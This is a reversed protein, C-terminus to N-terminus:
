EAAAVPFRRALRFEAGKEPEVYVALSVFARPTALTEAFFRRAPELLSAAAGSNSLTMHFRWEDLVYPYGYRQLYGLQAATRGAARKAQMAADEPLRHADLERVCLAAAENLAACEEAPLIALFGYEDAVRLRPMAFPRLRRALIEVDALFAAFGNRLQMPPKLTAHFGYRRPDSTAAAIGPVDPQALAAGSEPNQGLWACGRQWLTDNSEPAYYLAARYPEPL